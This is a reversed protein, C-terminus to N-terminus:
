FGIRIITALRAPSLVALYKEVAAIHAPDFGTLDIVTFDNSKLLHRDLSRFFEKPNWFKSANPHGFADYTRGLDDIYEAGRHPSERLSKGLLAELRQGTALENPSLRTANKLGSDPADRLVKELPVVEADDLIQTSKSAAEIIEDDFKQATTSTLDVIEQGITKSIQAGKTLAKTAGMTALSTTGEIVINDLLITSTSGLGAHGANLELANERAISQLYDVSQIGVKNYGMTMAPISSTGFWSLFFSADANGSPAVQKITDHAALSIGGAIIDIGWDRIGKLPGGKVLSGRPTVIPLSKLFDRYLVINDNVSQAVTPDEPLDSTDKEDEDNGFWDFSFIGVLSSVPTPTENAQSEDSEDNWRTGDPKDAFLKGIGSGWNAFLTATAV